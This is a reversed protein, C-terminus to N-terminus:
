VSPTPGAGRWLRYLRVSEVGLDDRGRGLIWDPGIQYIEVGAPTQATAVWRGQADFVSWRLADGSGIAFDRVWLCGQADVILRDFAPVTPRVPLREESTAVALGAARAQARRAEESEARVQELEARSAPRLEGSRRISMFPTGRPDVVDIRFRDSEAVFVRNVGVGVFSDRGFLVPRLMINNGSRIAVYELSASRALTDALAGNATLRMYVVSDRREGMDTRLVDEMNGTPALLFSGDAFAAKLGATLSTVDRVTAMRGFRGDPGFVSIRWPEPDWVAVSDGRYAVLADLSQFEGPGGGPGGASRVFRGRADYFRLERSHGNAVVVAGNALRVAGRVGSLQYEPAGEAVGVEVTPQEDVRWADADGAAPRRSEVIRVGASDRVVPAPEGGGAGCAAGGSVILSFFVFKATNM